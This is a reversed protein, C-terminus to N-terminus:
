DAIIKLMKLYQENTKTLEIYGADRWEELTRMIKENRLDQNGFVARLKEAPWRVFGEDYFRNLGNKAIEITKDM